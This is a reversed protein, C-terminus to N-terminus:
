TVPRCAVLVLCVLAYVVQVEVATLIASQDGLGEVSWPRYKRAEM